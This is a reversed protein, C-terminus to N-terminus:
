WYLYCRERDSWSSDITGLSPHFWCRHDPVARFSLSLGLKETWFSIWVLPPLLRWCVASVVTVIGRGQALWGSRTQLPCCLPDSLVKLWRKSKQNRGRWMFDKCHCFPLLARSLEWMHKKLESLPGACSVCATEHLSRVPWMCLSLFGLYVCGWFMGLQASCLPPAQWVECCIELQRHFGQFPVRGSLFAFGSETEDSEQLCPDLCSHLLENPKRRHGWQGTHKQANSYKTTTTWLRFAVMRWIPQALLTGWLRFLGIKHPMYILIKPYQARRPETLGQGRSSRLTPSQSKM